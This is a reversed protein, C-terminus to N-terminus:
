SICINHKKCVHDLTAETSTFEKHCIPCVKTHEAYRLHNKLATLSSFPVLCLPCVYPSISKATLFKYVYNYEELLQPNKVLIKVIARILRKQEISLKKYAEYEELSIHFSITKNKSSKKTQLNKDISKDM